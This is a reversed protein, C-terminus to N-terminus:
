APQATGADALCPARALVALLSVVLLISTAVSHHSDQYLASADRLGNANNRLNTQHSRCIRDANCSHIM